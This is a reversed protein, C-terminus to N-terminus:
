ESVTTHAAHGCDHWYGLHPSPLRNLIIPIEEFSPIQFFFYRNEVGLRVGRDAAYKLVEGLNQITRELFPPANQQRLEIFKETTKCIHEQPGFKIKLSRRFQREMERQSYNELEVEGVHLIVASARLRVALDITKKTYKIAKKVMEKRPSSFNFRKFFDSYSALEKTLPCINHLSTIKLRGKECDNFVERLFEKPFQYNLELAEFGLSRATDIIERGSSQSGMGWSTSLSLM